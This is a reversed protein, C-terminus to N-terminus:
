SIVCAVIGRVKRYSPILSSRWAALCDASVLEEGRLCESDEVGGGVVDLGTMMLAASSWVRAEWTWRQGSAVGPLCHNEIVSGVRPWARGM